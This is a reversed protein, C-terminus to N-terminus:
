IASRLFLFNVQGPPLWREEPLRSQIADREYDPHNQPPFNNRSSTSSPDSRRYKDPPGHNSSDPRKIASYFLSLLGDIESILYM